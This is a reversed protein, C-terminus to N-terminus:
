RSGERIAKKIHEGVEVTTDALLHLTDLNLGVEIAMRIIEKTNYFTVPDTAGGDRFAAVARKTDTGRFM